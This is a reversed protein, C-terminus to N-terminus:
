VVLQRAIGMVYAWMNDGGQIVFKLPILAIGKNAPPIITIWPGDWATVARRYAKSELLKPLPSTNM